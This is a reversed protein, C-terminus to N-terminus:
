TQVSKLGVAGQWISQRLNCQSQLWSTPSEVQVPKIQAAELAGVGEWNEGDSGRPQSLDVGPKGSGLDELINESVSTRRECRAMRPTILDQHFEPSPSM